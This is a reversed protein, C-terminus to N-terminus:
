RVSMHEDYKICVECEEHGLKAFSINMSKIKRTCCHPAHKRRYHSIGPEYSNIHDEMSKEDEDSVRHYSHDHKRKQCDPDNSTLAVTLFKDATYGLTNMFM